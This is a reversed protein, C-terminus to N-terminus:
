IHIYIYIYIYIHVRVLRWSVDAQLGWPVAQERLVRGSSGVSMEIHIYIYIHIHTYIYIHIYTHIYMYIYIYLIYIYIDIHWYSHIYIYIYIYTHLVIYHKASMEPIKALLDSGCFDPSIVDPTPEKQSSTGHKSAVDQRGTGKSARMQPFCGYPKIYIYIYIYICM